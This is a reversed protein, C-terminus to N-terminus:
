EFQRYHDKLANRAIHGIRKVATAPDKSTRIHDLIQNFAEIAAWDSVDLDYEDVLSLVHQKSEDVMSMLDVVKARWVDFNRKAELYENTPQTAPPPCLRKLRARRRAIQRSLDSDVRRLERYWTLIGAKSSLWHEPEILQDGRFDEMVIRELEDDSYM